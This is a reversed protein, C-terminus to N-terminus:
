PSCVFTPKSLIPSTSKPPPSSDLEARPTLGLYCQRCVARYKEAGGIDVESEDASIEIRQSFSAPQHCGMCVATLKTVDEALPVLDLISGFPKRLYNGDLAAVVVIRGSNAQEEAWSGLDPFFQGEDIGIVDYENANPVEALTTCPLAAVMQRNDDSYASPDSCVSRSHLIFNGRCIKYRVQIECGFLSIGRM